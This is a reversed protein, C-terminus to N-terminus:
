YHRVAKNIFVLFEIVMSLILLVVLSIHFGGLNGGTVSFVLVLLNIQAIIARTDQFTQSVSKNTAYSNWKRDMDKYEADKRQIEADKQQVVIDRELERARDRSIHVHRNLEDLDIEVDNHDSM